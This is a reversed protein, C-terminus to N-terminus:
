STAAPVRAPVYQGMFPNRAPATRTTAVAAITTIRTMVARPRAREMGPFVASRAAGLTPPRGHGTHPARRGGPSLTRDTRRSDCVRPLIM